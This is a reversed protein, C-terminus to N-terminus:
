KQYTVRFFELRQPPFDGIRTITGHSILAQLADASGQKAIVVHDFAPVGDREYRPISQDRYFNLGYEVERRANFVAVRSDAAGVKKLQQNISRSSQTEDITIGNLRLLLMLGLVVPVLTVFRLVRLGSKRVFLLVVIAIVGSSVAIIYRTTSPSPERMMSFPAVLAGAMLVGCVLSHLMLKIRSIGTGHLYFATLISAPPISPLIYGPLKSRSISFFVIPVLIWVILFSSLGDDNEATVREPEELRRRVRWEERVSEVLAPATFVVWPLVMLLFVPIYYWFPQSHQYLNTGFRELNHQLFFTRFYEPARRQVLIYWPVSVLFFLGFGPLWLSRLFGEGDRRLWAYAGVILLAFAPAVPGKALAAIALLVFFVALWFRKDTKRWTWWALMAICFPATLQMDTSAGRAFGIMGAMSVTIMAGDFEAGERFRLLFAYIAFVLVMAFLASPVRAAWDQVGFLRYSIIEGWYLLVPKELWPQGNITPLVWDHRALMERGIQAYRPEDAGVLGFAGLGFFFCFLCVGFVIALQLVTLRTRDTM